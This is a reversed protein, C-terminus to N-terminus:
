VWETTWVEDPQVVKKWKYESSSKKELEVDNDEWSIQLDDNYYNSYIIVIEAETDKHNKVTM